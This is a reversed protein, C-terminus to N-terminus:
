EHKLKKPANYRGTTEATAAAGIKEVPIRDVTIKTDHKQGWEMAMSEFWPDFQPAFHSWKAIKLKKQSALSRQPFLFYPGVAAVSAALKNFDRRSVKKGAESRMDTILRVFEAPFRMHRRGASNHM